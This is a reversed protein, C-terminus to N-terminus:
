VAAQLVQGCLCHHMAFSLLVCSPVFSCLFGEAIAMLGVELSSLVCCIHKFKWILTHSTEGDAYTELDGLKAKSLNDRVLQIVIKSAREFFVPMVKGIVAPLIPEDTLGSELDLAIRQRQPLMNGSDHRGPHVSGLCCVALTSVFAAQSIVKTKLLM